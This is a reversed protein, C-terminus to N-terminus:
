KGGNIVNKMRAMKEGVMDKEYQPLASNMFIDYLMEAQMLMITKYREREEKDAMLDNLENELTSLKESIIDLGEKATQLKETAINLLATGAEGQKESTNKMRSVADCLKDIASKLSPMLGKKYTFALFLSGLAALASLIKDSHRYFVSYVLSYISESEVSEEAAAADNAATFIAFISFIFIFILIFTLLKKM